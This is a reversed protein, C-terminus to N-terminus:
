GHAFAEPHVLRAVKEALLPPRLAWEVGFADYIMQLIEAHPRREAVAEYIREIAGEEITVIDDEEDAM